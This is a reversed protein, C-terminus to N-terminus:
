PDPRRDKRKKKGDVALPATLREYLAFLYEVRQRDSEFPEKRYCREVARDLAEHAKALTPPMALPDYLDALTSGPFQARADLVGQALQEVKAKQEETAEMPWPFNNYVLKNSYRYDSKIRGCVRRMWAMHMSSGLVGFHYLSAGPIATCSDSIITDPQFYGFPVYRRNESSHRPILIYPQKPQRIQDFLTPKSAMRRTSEKPSSERFERVANVRKRLGENERVLGPPADVLWLVWRDSGNIYQDASLLRRLYPEVSPNERLFADKEHAEVILNGGDAPKNGNVIAPVDCIPSRRIPLVIDGGAVLYPSINTPNSELPESTATEYEFLRKKGVDFRAFGIVV